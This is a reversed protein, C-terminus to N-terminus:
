IDSELSTKITNLKSVSLERNLNYYLQNKKNNKVYDKMYVVSNITKAITISLMLGTLIILMNTSNLFKTNIADERMTRIIFNVIFMVIFTLLIIRQNKDLSVWQSKIFLNVRSMNKIYFLVLSVIGLINAVKFARDNAERNVYSAILLIMYYCTALLVLTICINLYLDFNSVKDTIKKKIDELIDFM